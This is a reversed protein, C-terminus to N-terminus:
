PSQETPLTGAACAQSGPNPDEAPPPACQPLFSCFLRISPSASWDAWGHALGLGTLSQGAFLSPSQLAPNSSVEPKWAHRQMPVCM